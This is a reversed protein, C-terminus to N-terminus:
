IATFVFVNVIRIDLSCIIVGFNCNFGFKKFRWPFRFNTRFIPYKSFDPTVLIVINSQPSPFSKQKSNDSTWFILTKSIPIKFGRM